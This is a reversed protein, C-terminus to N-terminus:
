LTYDPCAVRVPDVSLEANVIDITSCGQGCFRLGTGSCGSEIANDDLLIICVM